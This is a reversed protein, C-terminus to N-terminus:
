RTRGARSMKPHGLPNIAEGTRKFGHREYWPVLRDLRTRKDLPSAALEVHYDGYGVDALFLMARLLLSGTGKRRKRQPVRIAIIHLLKKRHDVDFLADGGGARCIQGRDVHDSVPFTMFKLNKGEFPFVTTTSEEM